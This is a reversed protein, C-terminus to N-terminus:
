PGPRLDEPRDIDIAAEPLPVQEVADGQRRLLERAGQDGRLAALEAFCCQPFIAPAGVVPDIGRLYAAAVPRRPMRRWCAVLRELSAASVHPQDALMLLVAACSAPLAAIGARISSAIGEEWAQNVVISADHPPLSAAIETAHAGLVLTVRPGVVAAAAQMSRQLLPRGEFSFLQKPAGFRRSAGAALIVGHLTARAARM